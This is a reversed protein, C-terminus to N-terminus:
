IIDRICLFIERTGPSRFKNLPEVITMEKGKEGGGERGGERDRGGGGGGGGGWVCVCVCVCASTHDSPIM